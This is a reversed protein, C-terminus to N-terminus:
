FTDIEDVPTIPKPVGVPSPIPFGDKYRLITLLKYQIYFEEIGRYEGYEKRYLNEVEWLLAETPFEELLKKAKIEGIGKKLGRVKDTSCGSLYQVNRNYLAQEKPIFDWTDKVPNYHTGELQKLDHDTGVIIADSYLSLCIGVADESEMNDVPIFGWKSQMYARAENFFPPREDVRGDKYLPDILKRFNGRGGIFGIYCDANTPKLIKETIYYDIGELVQELTKTFSVGYMQESETPVQNPCIRWPVFDGDILILKGM